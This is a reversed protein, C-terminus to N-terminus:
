CLLESPGDDVTIRMREMRMDKTLTQPLRVGAIGYVHGDLGGHYGRATCFPNLRGLVTSWVPRTPTKVCQSIM